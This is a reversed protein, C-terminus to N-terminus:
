HGRMKRAMEEAKKALPGDAPRYDDLRVRKLEQQLVDESKKKQAIERERNAKARLSASSVPLEGALSQNCLWNLYALPNRIPNGSQPGTRIKASLEDLIIQREDPDVKVLYRISVKKEAPTFNEPFELEALEAGGTSITVGNNTTTTKNFCSSSSSIYSDMKQVSGLGNNPSPPQTWNNSQASDMKQVRTTKSDQPTNEADETWTPATQRMKIAEDPDVGADIAQQISALEFKAVERIQSHSDTAMQELLDIYGGNVQCTESISAPSDQLAYENGQVQGTVSDRRTVVFLWRTAQLIKLAKSLTSRSGLNAATLIDDYDPFRAAQNEQIEMKLILWVRVEIASLRGDRALQRPYADNWCGNFTLSDSSTQVTHTM